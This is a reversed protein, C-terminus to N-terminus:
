NKRLEIKSLLPKVVRFLMVSLGVLLFALAVPEKVFILIGDDSLMLAQRFAEEANRALVFAIVFAAASFNGVRM